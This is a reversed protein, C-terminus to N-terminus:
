LGGEAPHGFHRGTHEVGVEEDEAADDPREEDDDAGAAAQKDGGRNSAAAGESDEEDDADGDGGTSVPVCYMSVHVCVTHPCM